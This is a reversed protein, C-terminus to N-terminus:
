IVCTDIRLCVGITIQWLHVARICAACVRVGCVVCWVGCVVCWVGCVVCWVGCVVGGCVGCVVCWVGCEM